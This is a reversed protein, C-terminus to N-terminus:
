NAVEAGAALRRLRLGAYIYFMAASFANVIATSLAIGKVGFWRMFVLNLGVNVALGCIATVLVFHNARLAMVLRAGLAVLISGPVQFGAFRLVEAVEKTDAPTFEGREFVIRIIPESAFWFLIVFPLSGALILSSFGLAMRSLQKWDKQAALEAVKPFLAQAVALGTICFVGCIREGYTLVAVSGAPLM